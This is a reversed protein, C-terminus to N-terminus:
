AARHRNKRLPSRRRSLASQIKGLVVVTRSPTLQCEWITLVSFDAARLLRAVRQDRAKNKQIKGKWYPRNIEPSDTVVQADTGFVVTSSFLFASSSSFLIRDALCIM